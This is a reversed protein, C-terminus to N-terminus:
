FVVPDHQSLGAKINATLQLVGHQDAVHQIGRAAPVVHIRQRELVQVM